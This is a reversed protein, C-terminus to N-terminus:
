SMQNKKWAREQNLFRESFDKALKCNTIKDQIMKKKATKMQDKKKMMNIIQIQINTKKLREM